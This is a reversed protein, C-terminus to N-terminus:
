KSAELEFYLFWAPVLWALRQEYFEPFKNALRSIVSRKLRGGDFQIHSAKMRYEAESYYALDHGPCFCDFSFRSLHWRHTPDVFSNASSFHPTTIKLIGGPKLIRHFETMTRPIDAVHEIVDLCEVESFTSDDFPYPCVDLDWLVDPDVSAARDLRIVNKEPARRGCGVSLKLSEASDLFSVPQTQVLKM